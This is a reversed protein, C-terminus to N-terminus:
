VICPWEPGAYAFQNSDKTSRPLYCYCSKNNLSISILPGTNQLKEWNKGFFPRYKVSICYISWPNRRLMTFPVYFPNVMKFRHLKENTFIILNLIKCQFERLMTGLTTEFALSYLKKWDIALDPYKSLIKAKATAPTQKLSRFENYILKSSASALDIVKGAIILEFCTQDMASPACYPNTKIISRREKPIADFVGMLSFSHCPSFSSIRIKDSKLLVGDRSVLDGVKLIGLNCFVSQFISKGESLIYKNNWIIQNMIGEYSSSDYNNM